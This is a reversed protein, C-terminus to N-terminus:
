KVLNENKSLYKHCTEYIFNKEDFSRAPRYLESALIHYKQHKFLIKFMIKM